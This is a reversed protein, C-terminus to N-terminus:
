ENVACSAAMADQAALEQKALRIFQLLPRRGTCWFACLGCEFCADIGYHRTKAYKKFEAHRTIMNPEIRAPCKAVCVGCNICAADTIPPFDKNHVVTLAWIDKALGMSPSDLADGCMPGGRLLSDGDVLTVKAAALIESLATGVPAIVIKGNVSCVNETIPLGTEMAKGIRFLEHVGIVCVGKLNEKGTAAKVVLANVSAPYVANVGVGSCGQISASVSQSHVLKCTDTGTLKKAAELGKALTTAQSALLWGAIGVGPEPNLGNIVLTQAKCLSTTSVGLQKLVTRLEDGALGTTKLPAVPGVSVDQATITVGKDTIDTVVGAIPSHADGTNKGPHDAVLTGPAVEAKKKVTKTSHGALPVVVQVPSQCRVAESAVQIDLSFSTKTM